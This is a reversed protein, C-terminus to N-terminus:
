LPLPLSNKKEQIWIANRKFYSTGMTEQEKATCRQSYSGGDEKDEKVYQFITVLDAGQAKGLSFYFWDKFHKNRHWAGREELLRWPGKNSTELKETGRNIPPSFSSVTSWTHALFHWASYDIVNRLKSVLNKTICGLVRNVQIAVLACRWNM